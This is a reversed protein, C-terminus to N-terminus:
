YYNGQFICTVQNHATMSLWIKTNKLSVSRIHTTAPDINIRIPAGCVHLQERPYSIFHQFLFVYLRHKKTTLPNCLLGIELFKIPKRSLKHQLM